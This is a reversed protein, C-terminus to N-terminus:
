KRQPPKPNVSDARLLTKGQSTGTEPDEGEVVLSDPGDGLFIDFLVIPPHSANTDQLHVYGSLERLTDGFDFKSAPIRYTGNKNIREFHYVTTDVYSLALLSTFVPTFGPPMGLVRFNFSFDNEKIKESIGTSDLLFRFGNRANPVAYSFFSPIHSLPLSSPDVPKLQNQLAILDDVGKKARELRAKVSDNMKLYLDIHDSYWSLSTDWQSQTTNHAEFVRNIYAEKKEPTNFNSYDNDMTAEAVYVDYMLREMQKRSLVEGPRNQCSYVLGGLLVVLLLYSVCRNNRM